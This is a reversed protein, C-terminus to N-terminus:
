SHIRCFIEKEAYLEKDLYKDLLLELRTDEVALEYTWNAKDDFILYGLTQLDCVIEWTFNHMSPVYDAIKAMFESLRTSEEYELPCRHPAHCDDGMSVSAREAYVIKPQSPLKKANETRQKLRPVREAGCETCFKGKTHKAGCQTCYWVKEPFSTSKEEQKSFDGCRYRDRQFRTIHGNAYAKDIFSYLEVEDLIYFEKAMFYANGVHAEEEEVYYLNGDKDRGIFTDSHNHANISVIFLEECEVDVYYQRDASLKKEVKYM